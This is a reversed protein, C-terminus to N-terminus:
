RVLPEIAPMAEFEARSLPIRVGKETLSVSRVALSRPGGARLGKPRVLIQAPKGDPGAIVREVHGILDGEADLVPRGELSGSRAVAEQAAAEVSGPQASAVAPCALALALLAAFFFSQRM